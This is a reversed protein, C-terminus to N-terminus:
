AAVRGLIWMAVNFYILVGLVDSLSAIFPNSMIAPDMGLKRLVLPLITGNVTGMFVVCLVSMAVVSVFQFTMFKLITFAFCLAALSAGLTLGMLAERRVILGTERRNMQRLTLSRIVLTASQSGANGGSALVLPLFLEIWKFQDSIVQYHELLAASGFGTMLLPVLWIGRKWALTFFPTTLYEGELPQVAAMRYMEETAEEQVVDLVDDHTIIGVLRNQDDVVPVAIFDYRAMKQAVSEQDEDVRVSIVDSEMVQSVLADPKALILKRLTLFGHLHRGDDLIYVYYITESNPAQRRLRDLAERVTIEEPLSAYETTMISGASHETYSLMRRIENREAAAVLPLLSEVLEPNLSGLLHARDDSAMQELLTSIRGRELGSILERQKPLSFYEFIEGQRHPTAHSLVQWIEDQSLAELNEAVVGAHFVDCFEQMAPGDSELLMLRLEPLLLPDYM